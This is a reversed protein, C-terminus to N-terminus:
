THVLASLFGGACTDDLQAIVFMPVPNLKESGAYFVLPEGRRSLERLVAPGHGEFLPGQEDDNVEAGWNQKARAIVNVRGQVAGCCDIYISM